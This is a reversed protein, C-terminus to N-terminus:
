KTVDKFKERELVWGEGNISQNAMTQTKVVDFFRKKVFSAVRYTVNTIPHQLCFMTVITSHYFIRM